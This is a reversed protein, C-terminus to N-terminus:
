SSLMEEFVAGVREACGQWTFSELRAIGLRVLKERLGQNELLKCLGDTISKQDTPDVLVAAEGAVEPLSTTTSTLVPTRCAFADLVPLGFGESLSPYCLAAAGSLLAPLDREHAFGHLICRDALGLECVLSKFHAMAADQIGILLLTYRDTITKPLEKWSLLIRQTNKRPDAAGFGLVYARSGDLGYRSQVRALEAPDKVKRLAGAPAWPNVILKDAQVGFRQVIKDCTFQSPAFIRHAKQVARGVSKAWRGSVPTLFETELPILDHITVVMPVLPHRPATNAPCHLIDVGNMKAALPLRIEQWFNFRDGPMDVPCLKVNAYNEFPNDVITSNLLKVFTSSRPSQKVNTYQHFFIFEWNDKCSILQRYLDVLTKGIGRRPADFITRADIGIIPTRKM